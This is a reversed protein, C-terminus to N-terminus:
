LVCRCGSRSGSRNGPAVRQIGTDRVRRSRRRDRPLPRTRGSGVGGRTVVVFVAILLWGVVASLLATRSPPGWGISAAVLGTMIPPVGVLDPVIMHECDIPSRSSFPRCSYLERPWSTDPRVVRDHRGLARGRCGGRAPLALQDTGRLPPLRGRSAVPSVLPINDYWRIAALCRPGAITRFRSTARSGGRSSMPSAASASHWRATRVGGLAVAADGLCRAPVRGGVRHWRLGPAARTRVPLTPWVRGTRHAM